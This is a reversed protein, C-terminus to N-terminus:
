SSASKEQGLGKGESDGSAKGGRRKKYKMKGMKPREEIRESVREQIGRLLFAKLNFYAQYNKKM